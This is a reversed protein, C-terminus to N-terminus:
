RKILRYQWQYQDKNQIHVFDDWGGPPAWIGYAMPIGEKSYAKRYAIVWFADLKKDKLLEKQLFYSFLNQLQTFSTDNPVVVSLEVRRMTVKDGFILTKDERKKFSYRCLKNKDQVSETKQVPMPKIKQDPKPKIKQEPKPKTKQEFKSEAKQAPMPKTGQVLVPETKLALIPKTGQVLVPETKLVSMPKRGQVLVPETKLIPMPEKKKEKQVVKENLVQEQVLNRQQAQSRVSEEEIPGKQERMSLKKLDHEPLDVKKQESDEDIDPSPLQVVSAPVEIPIVIPEKKITEKSIPRSKVGSDREIREVLLRPAETDCQAGSVIERIIVIDKTLKVIKGESKTGDTYYITDAYLPIALILLILTLLGKRM